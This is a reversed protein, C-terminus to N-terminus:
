PASWQAPRAVHAEELTHGLRWGFREYREQNYLNKGARRWSSGRVAVLYQRGEFAPRGLTAEGGADEDDHPVRGFWRAARLLGDPGVLLEGEIEAQEHERACFGLITAEGSRGMMTIAHRVHFQETIFHEAGFDELPSYRWRWFEGLLNVHHEYMAYHPPDRM